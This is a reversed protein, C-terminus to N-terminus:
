SRGARRLLWWGIAAVGMAAASWLWGTLDWQRHQGLNSVIGILSLVTFFVGVDRLREDNLRSVIGMLMTSKKELNSLLNETEWTEFLHLPHM